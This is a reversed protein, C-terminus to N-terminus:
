PALTALFPRALRRYMEPEGSIQSYIDERSRRAGIEFKHMSSRMDRPVLYGVSALFTMADFVTESDGHIPHPYIRFRPDIDCEGSDIMTRLEAFAAAFASDVQRDRSNLWLPDVTESAATLTGLAFDVSELRNRRDTKMIM